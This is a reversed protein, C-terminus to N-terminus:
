GWIFRQRKLTILNRFAALSYCNLNNFKLTQYRNVNVPVFKPKVIDLEPHRINSQGINTKDSILIVSREDPM